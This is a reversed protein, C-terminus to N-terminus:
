IEIPGIYWWHAYKEEAQPLGVPWPGGPRELVASSRLVAHRDRHRFDAM